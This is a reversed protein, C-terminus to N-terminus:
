AAPLALQNSFTCADFLDVGHLEPHQLLISSLEEAVTFMSGTPTGNRLSELALVTSTPLASTTATAITLAHEIQALYPRDVELGHDIAFPVARPGQHECLLLKAIGSATQQTLGDCVISFSLQARALLNAAYQRLTSPRVYGSFDGEEPISRFGALVAKILSPDSVPHWELKGSDGPKAEDVLLIEKAKLSPYVVVQGRYAPIASIPAVDIDAYRM